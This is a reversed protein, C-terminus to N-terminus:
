LLKRVEAASIGENRYMFYGSKHIGVVEATALSFIPSGSNGQTTSCDHFIDPGETGDLVEGLAASRVGFKGNFVATLFLPNNNEDKGPYGVAVITDAEKLEHDSFRVPARAATEARLIVIDKKPHVHVVETIGGIDTTANSAGAEQKFVIRANGAALVDAGGSLVALVHRNTAILGDGVVFGTGVHSKKSDEIRGISGVFPRVKGRFGSWGDKLETPQLDKNATEPLDGLEGDSTLVVPRMLRIVMELAAIQGPTPIEGKQFTELAKQAEAESDPINKSGVIARVKRIAEAPTNSGLARRARDFTGM